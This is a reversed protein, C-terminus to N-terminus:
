AAVGLLSAAAKSFGQTSCYLAVEAGTVQRDGADGRLQRVAECLHLWGWMYSESLQGGNTNLPLDGGIRTHGEALWPGGEGIPCFGYYELMQLVWVATPDQIYLVDVDTPRLGSTSWLRDAVSAIWPRMVNRLDFQERLASQEAMGLVRVPRHPLSAAREATTVVLGAGGDSRM